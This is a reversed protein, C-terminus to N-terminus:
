GENFANVPEIMPEIVDLELEDSGDAILDKEDDIDNGKQLLEGRQLNYLFTDLSMGGGQWTALLASLQQADMTTDLFDRNLKISVEDQSGEWDAAWEIVTTLLAECANAVTSLTASEGSAEIRATEAAKVGKSPNQLMKAGVSAMASIDAEMERTIASLGSGTFELLEARGTSDTIHNASGAGVTLNISNGNDDTMDGFVFMTPLATYHLGHKIDTNLRYHDLNIDAIELLAPNTLEFSLENTNAVTFPIHALREGRNTPIKVDVIRWNKGDNRWINQIYYGMEDYTLELYETKSVQKYRDDKDAEIYEQSLVVYDDSWNIISETPYTLIIPREGNHEVLAGCRGGILQERIISSALLGLDRGEGNTDDEIYEINSPIEIVPEKRMIAGTFATSTPKVVPLFMGRMKYANYKADTQGDLKPLYATGAEKIADSGENCDRVRIVKKVHDQYLHHPTNIPMKFDQYMLQM